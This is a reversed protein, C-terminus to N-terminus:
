APEPEGPPAVDFASTAERDIAEQIFGSRKADEVFENAYDLWDARGKPVVVRNFQYGYRDSLVRSGALERSVKGLLQRTSAFFDARGSRLLEFAAREGDGLIIEARKIVKTLTATSAHGRVAAIRIGPHDADSAEQIASGAPVLLTYESQIFPYSVDGADAVREDKPLFVIDCAGTKLSKIADGPGPHVLLVAEVGIRAALGRAMDPRVGQLMGTKPDKSFQSGFLGARFEGARVLDAVRDDSAPQADETGLNTM